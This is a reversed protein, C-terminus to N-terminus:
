TALASIKEELFREHGGSYNNPILVSNNEWDKKTQSFNKYKWETQRLYTGGIRLDTRDHYQIGDFKPTIYGLVPIKVFSNVGQTFFIKNKEISGKVEGDNQYGFMNVAGGIPDGASGPMWIKYVKKLQLTFLGRKDCKWSKIADEPFHKFLVLILTALDRNAFAEIDDAIQKLKKEHMTLEKPLVNVAEEFIDPVILDEDQFFNELNLDIIDQAAKAISSVGKNLIDRVIVLSKQDESYMEEKCKLLTKRERLNSIVPTDLEDNEYSAITEGTLNEIPFSADLAIIQKVEEELEKDAAIPSPNFIKSIFFNIEHEIKELTSPQQERKLKLAKAHSVILNKTDIREELTAREEKLEEEVKKIRTKLTEFQLKASLVRENYCIIANSLRGITDVKKIYAEKIKKIALRYHARYETSFFYKINTIIKQFFIKIKQIIEFIFNTKQISKNIFDDPITIPTDPNKIVEELMKEM